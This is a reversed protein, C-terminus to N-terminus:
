ANVNYQLTLEPGSIGRAHPLDFQFTYTMAGSQPDVQSALEAGEGSIAAVPPLPTEDEAVGSRSWVALLTILFALALAGRFKNM